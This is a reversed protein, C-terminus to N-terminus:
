RTWTAEGIGFAFAFCECARRDFRASGITSGVRSRRAAGGASWARRTPAAPPRRVRRAGAHAPRAGRATEVRRAVAFARPSFAEARVAGARSEGRSSGAWAQSPRRWWRTRGPPPMPASIASSDCNGRRAADSPAPESAPPAFPYPPSGGRSRSPPARRISARAGRTRGGTRRSSPGSVGLRRRARAGPAGFAKSFRERLLLSRADLDSSSAASTSVASSTWRRRSSLCAKM